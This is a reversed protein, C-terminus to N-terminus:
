AWRAFTRQREAGITTTPGHGPLVITEDPLFALRRMSAHMDADSGGPFDTRGVTGAFLTDGSILVPAGDAHNGFQPVLFWCLGGKTHGPTVLVKWGMNGVQAIVGDGVTCDVPCPTFTRSDEPVPAEGCIVPADEASAIVTAGTAERLAAAAGVHDFHRHTLLIADLTRGGLAEVIEGANASPDVVMTGVGDSILYVNNELMGQVLFQVDVCTGPVTQLKPM